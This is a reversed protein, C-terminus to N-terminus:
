VGLVPGTPERGLEAQSPRSRTTMTWITCWAAARCYLATTPPSCCTRFAKRCRVAQRSRFHEIMDKISDPYAAGLLSPVCLLGHAHEVPVESFLLLMPTKFEYLLYQGSIVRYFVFYHLAWAARKFEIM